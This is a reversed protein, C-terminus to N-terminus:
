HVAEILHLKTYAAVDPYLKRWIAQQEKFLIPVTQCLPTYPVGADVGQLQHMCGCLPCCKLWHGEGIMEVAVQPLGNEITLKFQKQLHAVTTPM